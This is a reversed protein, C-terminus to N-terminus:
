LNVLVFGMNESQTQEAGLAQNMILGLLTDLICLPLLQSIHDMVSLIYSDFLLRFAVLYLKRDSHLLSSTCFSFCYVFYRM